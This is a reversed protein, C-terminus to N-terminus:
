SVVDHDFELQIESLVENAEDLASTSEDLLVLKPRSLLLRAFAIRQQEGLSLVSSWECTIDLSSFRTLLYGLGVKDLVQILDDTTPKDPNEGVNNINSACHKSCISSTTNQFQIVLIANGELVEFKGSINDWLHGNNSLSSVNSEAHGASTVSGEAWTPYLLQQRLTGLVMYPRQPLFFIGQYNKNLPRSNEKSVDEGTDAETLGENPSVLQEPYDKIYFTIKGKGVNWLGALVRLLSTKGCGSPGMVLLHEKEKVILTLDRVLTAGNPAGLTMNEIELLKQRKDPAMSGNSELLPSSERHSYMLRIEESINSLVKPASGDLLDDFEGLRDIIASFASIAQFQYVIISFDGLIHNFASVSQNIVGFEIKGSFYMPAVVAAPLIQILYRYGNTFFELNRSAILLKTLNEVASRFRQLILQMENEEGGYFAISEANERIRVLGYRFDAEKKEQLFNLNVLGKGLFVSIATGGISYLLLIVFLPPYIGYLINSFSILDVTSNFLALSFSLATGTFSSLDDVIRQDPNDIISQSQIKYFSQDKLYREMYHKTMWSRWRLSLMDKAYDRLVFVPIGGAFAGLYYLLQKTFQEQDKNALANYFDRGLFNFGVSIGTTGLTLAFVAALQWRAQVKDDSFWYPAAVKWLRKLLIKLDPGPRQAPTTIDQQSQTSSSLDSASASSRVNIFRNRSKRRALSGGSSGVTVATTSLLIKSVRVHFQGHGCGDGYDLLQLQRRHSKFTHNDIVTSSVTFVSSSQSRLIM